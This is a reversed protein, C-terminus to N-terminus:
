SIDVASVGWTCINLVIVVVLSFFVLNFSCLFSFFVDFNVLNLLEGVDRPVVVTASWKM